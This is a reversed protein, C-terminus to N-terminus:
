NTALRLDISHDLSGLVLGNQHTLFKYRADTQKLNPEFAIPLGETKLAALYPTPQAQPHNGYQMARATSVVGLILSVLALYLLQLMFRRAIFARVFPHSSVM